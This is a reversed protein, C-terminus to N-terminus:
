GEGYLEAKWADVDIDELVFLAAGLAAIWADVRDRQSEPVERIYYPGGERARIAKLAPIADALHSRATKVLVGATMMTDWAAMRERYDDNSEEPRLRPKRMIAM